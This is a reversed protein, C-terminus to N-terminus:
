RVVVRVEDLRGEVDDVAPVVRADGQAFRALYHLGHLGEPPLSVQHHEVVLPVPEDLQLVPYLAVRGGQPEHHVVDGDGTLSTRRWRGRWTSGCARTSGRM